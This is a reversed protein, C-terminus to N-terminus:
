INLYCCQAGRCMDQLRLWGTWLSQWGPDGDSKRGLFGGLTAVRKWFEKLTLSHTLQYFNTIIKVELPEIHKNAMENPNLRSIDRLILLRTAIVGLIGFLVLLRDATKLQAEEIKCGSKLCKHYEEIIWRQKYIEVVEVANEASIVPLFTFLIWEITPDEECWARVYFGTISKRSRQPGFLDAKTWSLNLVCDKSRTGEKARITHKITTQAPLSRLHAKLKYETDNVRIKRDHTTRIVCNWNSLSLKEIFSFIDSARDGVTIWHSQSPGIDAIVEQWIDGESTEKEYKQSQRIWVKQAALGIMQSSGKNFKIALCSHFMIGHGSWDATPGLGSTWRHTNYTLESGDQIFLVKGDPKLAEEQTNEYHISQLMQHNVQSQNFFRYCGKVEAISSFRKPISRDPFELFAKAIKITRKHLRPDMFIKSPWQNEIWTCNLM